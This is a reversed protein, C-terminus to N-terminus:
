DRFVQRLATQVDEWQQAAKAYDVKMAKINPPIALRAKQLKVQPNQPIQASPGEALRKEVVPSLLFDILKKGLDPHPANKILGLTNPLFLTGPEPQDLYAIRVPKGKEIMEMADDTDTLGVDVKGDAVAQAVNSNGPLVVANAALNTFLAKASEPGLKVWLCAMHTATSGFFPKAMAFRHHWKPQGLERSSEPTETEALRKNVILVRARAAFAQWSHDAPHSTPPFPAAAPSAYPELFGRQALRQMLVPENCWFVDCRPHEAERVLAEYLSVSKDAESDGQYDIQIGTDKIFDALIEEAYERDQSCYLVLRPAASRQCGSVLCCATSLLFITVVWQRSAVSLQKSHLM